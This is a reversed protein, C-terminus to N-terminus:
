NSTIAFYENLWRWHKNLQAGCSCFHYSFSRVGIHNTISIIIRYTTTIWIYAAKSNNAFRIIGDIKPLLSKGVVFLLLFFVVFQICQRNINFKSHSSNMCILHRPQTRHVIWGIWFMHNIITEIPSKWSLCLKSLPRNQSNCLRMLSVNVPVLLTLPNRITVLRM